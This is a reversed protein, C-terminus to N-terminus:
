RHGLTPKKVSVSHVLVVHGPLEQTLSSLQPAGDTLFMATKLLPAQPFFSLFIFKCPKRRCKQYPDSFTISIEVNKQGICAHM